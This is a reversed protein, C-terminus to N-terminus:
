RESEPIERIIKAPNGGVITWPPVDKTVVSAAGIIAGQGITVGKLITSNFGIWVDDKIHVSSAAITLGFKPHGQNVIDLFHQHRANASVPHGDTDHINVNHSILVRDGIKVQTASWIRSNEGMYCSEGIEICGAHGFTFLEGLIHSKFGVKIYEPSDRLNVIRVGPLLKADQHIVAISRCHFGYFYNKLLEASRLFFFPISNILRISM